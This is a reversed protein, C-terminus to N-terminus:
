SYVGHAIRGIVAEVQRTGVDTDLRSIPTDNALARNPEQLWTSARERDGLVEEAFAAIRALRVLRDSEEPRLRRQLKRRALTRQPVALIAGLDQLSLDFARRLADFSEYPLGERLQARLDEESRVRKLVRPGGLADILQATAMPDEPRIADM